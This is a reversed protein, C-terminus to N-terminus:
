TNHATFYEQRPLAMSVGMRKNQLTQRNKEVLLAHGPNAYPPFEIVHKGAHDYLFMIFISVAFELRSFNLGYFVAGELLYRLVVIKSKDLNVAAQKINLEDLVKFRNEPVLAQNIFERDRAMDGCRRLWLFNGDTTVIGGIIRRNKEGFVIGHGNDLPIREIQLGGDTFIGIRQDIKVHNM